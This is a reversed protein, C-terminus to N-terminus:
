TLALAHGAPNSTMVIIKIQGETGATITLVGSGDPNVVKTVTKTIDIAAGSGGTLTQITGSLNVPKEFTAPVPIGGFLNAITVKFDYPSTSPKILYLVDASSIETAAQMTTVKSDAM